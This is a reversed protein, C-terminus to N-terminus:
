KSHTQPQVNRYGNWQESPYRKQKHLLVAKRLMISELNDTLSTYIVSSNPENTTTLTKRAQIVTKIGCIKNKYDM